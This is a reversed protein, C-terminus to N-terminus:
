GQRPSHYLVTMGCCQVRNSFAYGNARGDDKCVQLLKEIWYRPKLGSTSENAVIISHYREGTEGKFKGLLCICVRPLERVEKEMMLRNMLARAPVIGDEGENFHRRTAVIDM